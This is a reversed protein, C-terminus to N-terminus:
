DKMIQLISFIISKRHPNFIIISLFYHQIGFSFCKVVAMIMTFQEQFSLPYEQCLRPHITEKLQTVLTAM